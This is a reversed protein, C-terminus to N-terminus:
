SKSFYVFTILCSCCKLHRKGQNELLPFLPPPLSLSIFSHIISHSSETVLISYSVLLQQRLDEVNLQQIVRIYDGSIGKIDTEQKEKEDILQVREEVEIVSEYLM